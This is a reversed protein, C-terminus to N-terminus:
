SLATLLLRAALNAYVGAMVDDLVIGWGGPLDEVKRIPPPKAIDFLRFLVFGVVLGTTTHPLGIITVFYGAFEDIVIQQPDERGEGYLGSRFVRDATFIGLATTFLALM